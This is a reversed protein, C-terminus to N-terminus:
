SSVPEREYIGHRYCWGLRLMIRGGRRFLNSGYTAIRLKGDSSIVIRHPTNALMGDAGHNSRFMLEGGEVYINIVEDDGLVSRYRGVVDAATRTPLSEDGPLPYELDPNHGAAAPANRHACGVTLLAALALLEIRM